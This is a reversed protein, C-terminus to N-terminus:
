LPLPEILVRRFAVPRGHCQLGVYGEAGRDGAFNAVEHQGNLRVDYRQGVVSLVFTNWPDASAPDKSAVATPGATGYIAGTRYIAKGREGPDDHWGEDDIQVEYGRDVAAWPNDAPEPFRLFIGSSDAKASARWEVTLRFNRLSWRTYWLLGMGGQARIGDAGADVFAGRGAM